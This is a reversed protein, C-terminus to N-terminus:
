FFSCSKCVDVFRRSDINERLMRYPESNYIELVTNQTVDGIPHHAQGDMCCLAVKGTATISIEFWRNCGVDFPTFRDPGDIQGMWEGRQSIFAEFLPFTERVWESFEADSPSGDGVRSVVVRASFGGNAKQQHLAKLNNLTKEYPLHMTSTYHTKRHDNFSIWLYGLPITSLKKIHEQSLLSGNTTLSLIAHPLSTQIIDLFHYLRPEMLPENVKFPSLQFTHLVPIEKLDAIIKDFLADPMISGKRELSPYPCFSCAANCIAQTEIHIHRPYDIDSTLRSALFSNQYAKLDM